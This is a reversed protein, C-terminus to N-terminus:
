SIEDSIDKLLERRVQTDEEQDIHEMCLLLGNRLAEKDNCSWIKSTIEKMM